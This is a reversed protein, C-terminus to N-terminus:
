GATRRGVKGGKPTPPKPIKPAGRLADVVTSAVIAASFPKKRAFKLTEKGGSVVAKPIKKVQTQAKRATRGVLLKTRKFVDKPLREPRKAPVFGKGSKSPELVKREAKDAAAVQARTRELEKPTAKRSKRTAKYYQRKPKEIQAQATKELEGVTKGADVDIIRDKGKQQKLVDQSARIEDSTLKRTPPTSSTSKKTAKQIIKVEGAKGLQGPDTPLVSRRKKGLNKLNAGGVFKDGTKEIDQKAFTKAMRNTVKKPKQTTKIVDGTIKPKQSKKKAFPPKLGSKKMDKTADKQAEYELGDDIVEVIYGGFAEAVQTLDLEEKKVDMIQGKYKKKVIDLASPGKNVKRTKEMEKSPPMTTADKKDKSPKVRGMDRAVDYGEEGMMQKQRKNVVSKTSKKEDDSGEKDPM